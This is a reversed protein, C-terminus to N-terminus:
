LASLREFRRKRSAAVRYRTGHGGRARRSPLGRDSPCALSRWCPSCGGSDPCRLSVARDFTVNALCPNPTRNGEDGCLVTQDANSEPGGSEAEPCAPPVDADRGIKNLREPWRM